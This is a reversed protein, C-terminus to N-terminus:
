LALKLAIGSEEILGLGILTKITGRVSRESLGTRQMVPAASRTVHGSGAADVALGYLVLKCTPPIDSLEAVAALHKVSM